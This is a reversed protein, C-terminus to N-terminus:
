VYKLEWGAFPKATGCNPGGGKGTGPVRAEMLLKVDTLCQQILKNTIGTLPIKLRRSWVSDMQGAMTGIDIYIFKDGAPGHVLPGILVPINDIVRCNIIFEFVINKGDSKTKQSTTYNSGKGNQIGYDCGPTPSELVIRFPIEAKM